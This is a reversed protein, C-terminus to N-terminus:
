APDYDNLNRDCYHIDLLKNDQPNVCAENRPTPLNLLSRLAKIKFTKMRVLEKVASVLLHRRHTKLLGFIEYAITIREDSDQYDDLFIKFWPDMSYILDFIRKMKFEPSRQLLKESHLPNLIIQRKKFSRQHSAVRQTHTQVEIRKPYAIIHCAKSALGSPVSYRNTEFEVLCTKSVLAPIIRKASYVNTPLLMLKEHALRHLPTEGTVRHIRQNRQTMKQFFIENLEEINNPDTDYLWVRIDRILREVRGKENGSYPNCLHINFGYHRAFELFGANYQIHPNRKIVVSKLNDYRHRRPLGKLHEFVDLHGQLFFEFTSKPYFRGWAYRSWCLLYVFGFLTGLKPTTYYFWDVQAEEGPHFILSHYAKHKKQRFCQTFREVASLSNKFGYAKLREYVQTAKLRPHDTYWQRILERYPELCSKRPMSSPQCDSQLLQKLRRYGIGLSQQIQNGSLNEVQAMYLVRQRLSDYDAPTM